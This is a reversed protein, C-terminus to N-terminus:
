PIRAIMSAVPQPRGGSSEKWGEKYVLIDWNAFAQRLEGQALLYAPDTDPQLSLMDQTLTEFFLVGGPRLAERYQPWLDRQLYYFNLIVDFTQQLISFCTLDAVVAMLGPLRARAQRVAISSIDVGVVRLGRKLLYGANGGLGMAVDLALGGEPLYRDNEVLFPRPQTYTAYREDGLYRANWRLADNQPM